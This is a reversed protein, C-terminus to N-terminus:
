RLRGQSSSVPPLFFSRNIRRNRFRKRNRKWMDRIKVAVQRLPTGEGLKKQKERDAIRKDAERNGGNKGIEEKEKEYLQPEPVDRGGTPLLSAIGGIGHRLSAVHQAKGFIEAAQM